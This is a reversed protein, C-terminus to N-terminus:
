AFDPPEGEGEQAGPCELDLFIRSGPFGAFMHGGASREESGFEQENACDRHADRVGCGEESARLLWAALFGIPRGQGSKTGPNSTKTKRCNRGHVGCYAFLAHTM